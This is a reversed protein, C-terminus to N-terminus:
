SVWLGHSEESGWHSWLAVEPIIYATLRAGWALICHWGAERTRAQREETAGSLFETM